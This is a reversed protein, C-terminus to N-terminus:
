RSDHLPLTFEVLSGLPILPKATIEGGHASVIKKCINLGLGLGGEKTTFFASFIEAECNVPFGCGTDAVSLLAHHEGARRASLTVTRREPPMDKVADVANMLLNLMVQQLQIADGRIYLGPECQEILSIQKQGLDHRLLNQVTAYVRPVYVKDVAQTGPFLLRRVRVIVATAMKAQHIIDLVIALHAATDVRNSKIMMEAAQSNTLISSLPQSLEHAVAGTMEGAMTVRALHFMKVESDRLAIAAELERSRAESTALRLIRMSHAISFGLAVVAFITTQALYFNRELLYQITLVNNLSLLKMSLSLGMPFFAIFFFLADVNKQWCLRIALVILLCINLLILHGIVAYASAYGAMFVWTVAAFLLCIVMDYIAILLFPTQAVLRLFQRAFLFFFGGGASFCTLLVLNNAEPRTHLLLEATIGYYGLNTCVTLFLFASFLLYTNEKTLGYLFLSCFCFALLCGFYAGLYFREQSRYSLFEQETLLSLPPSELFGDHSTMHLYVQLREGPGVTLPLSLTHNRQYRFDFPRRDGSAVSTKLQDLEADFVYWDVYDQLPTKLDLVVSQEQASSNGLELRVWWASGTFGFRPSQGSAHHWGAHSRVEAITQRASRDELLDYRLIVGLQRVDAVDYFAQQAHAVAPIAMVMLAALWYRAAINMGKVARQM